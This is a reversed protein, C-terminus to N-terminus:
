QNVWESGACKMSHAKVDTSLYNMVSIALGCGYHYVAYWLIFIRYHYSDGRPSCQWSSNRPLLFIESNMEVKSRCMVYVSWGSPQCIYTHTSYNNHDVVTSSLHKMLAVRHWERCLVWQSQRNGWQHTECGQPDVEGWCGFFHQILKAIKFELFSPLYFHLYPWLSYHM